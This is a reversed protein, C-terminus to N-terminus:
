SSLDGSTPSGRDVNLSLGDLQVAEMVFFLSSSRSVRTIIRDHGEHGIQDTGLIIEILLRFKEVM